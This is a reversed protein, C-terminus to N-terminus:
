RRMKLAATEGSFQPPHDVSWEKGRFPVLFLLGASNALTSVNIDKLKLPLKYQTEGLKANRQERMTNHPVVSLLVPKKDFAQALRFRTLTRMAETISHVNDVARLSPVKGTLLPLKDRVYGIFHSTRHTDHEFPATFPIAVNFRGGVSPVGGMKFYHVPLGTPDAFM